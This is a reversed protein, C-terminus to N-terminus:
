ALEHFLILSRPDGGESFEYCTPSGARVPNIRSACSSGARCSARTSSPVCSTKSTPTRRKSLWCSGCLRLPSGAWHSTGIPRSGASSRATSRCSSRRVSESPRELWNSARETSCARGACSCATRSRTGQERPSRFACCAAPGTPAPQCCTPPNSSRDPLRHGGPGRHAPGGGPRGDHGRGEQLAADHRRRGRHRPRQVARGLRATRGVRKPVAAVHAPGQPLPSLSGHVVADNQELGVSRLTGSVPDLGFMRESEREYALGAFDASAGISLPGLFQGTAFAWRRVVGTAADLVWARGADDFAPGLPTGLWGPLSRHPRARPADAPAFSFLQRGSSGAVTYLLGTHGDFGLSRARGPLGRVVGHAQLQLSSAQGGMPLNLSFLEANPGAVLWARGADDIAFGDVSLALPVLQGARELLLPGYHAAAITGASGSALVSADIRALGSQDVVWLAVSEFGADVHQTQGAAVAFAESHLGTAKQSLALGLYGDFDPASRGLGLDARYALIDKLYLGCFSTVLEDRLAHHFERHFGVGPPDWRTAPITMYHPHFDNFLNMMVSPGLTTASNSNGIWLMPKPVNVFGSSDINILLDFREDALGLASERAGASFGVWGVRELDLRGEFRHRATANWEEARSLVFSGDAGLIPELGTNQTYDGTIFGDPQYGYGLLQNLQNGSVQRIHDFDTQEYPGGRASLRGGLAISAHLAASEMCLAVYGHSALQDGVELMDVAGGLLGSFLLVVPFPGAETAPLIPADIRAEVDQISNTPDAATVDVPSGGASGAVALKTTALTNALDLADGAYVELITPRPAASSGALAPYVVWGNIPWPAGREDVRTLEVYTMGTDHPGRVTPERYGNEGNFDSDDARTAATVRERAANRTGVTTPALRLGPRAEIGVRYNGSPVDSLTYTGAADTTAAYGALPVGYRDLLQVAVNAVGPEATTRRGDQDVDLWVNGTVTAQDQVAASPSLLLLAALVLQM